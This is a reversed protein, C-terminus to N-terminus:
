VAKAAERVAFIAQQWLKQRQDLVQAVATFAAAQDKGPKAAGATAMLEDVKPNRYRGMNWVAPRAADDPNSKFLSELHYLGSANSPNFGFVALDFALAAREQRLADWYSGREIEVTRQRLRSSIRPREEFLRRPQEEIVRQEVTM